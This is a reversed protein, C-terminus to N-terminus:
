CPASCFYPLEAPYVIFSELFVSFFGAYWQFSSDHKMNHLKLSIKAIFIVGIITDGFVHKKEFTKIFILTLYFWHM